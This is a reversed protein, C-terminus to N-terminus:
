KKAVTLTGKMLAAHGPYSCFFAYPEGAKLKGLPIKVTDSEGGGVIRTHAIVRTDGAKLYNNDLGAKLGDANVAAEDAASALVWNHGMVNKALTGTHKLTVAFAKCTAPVEITKLNFQMADNGEITATCDAAWLPTCALGLVAIAILRRM